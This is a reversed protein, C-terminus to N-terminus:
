TIVSTQVVILCVFFFTSFGYFRRRRAHRDNAIKEIRWFFFLFFFLLLPIVVFATTIATMIVRGIVRTHTHTQSLSFFLFHSTSLSLSYHRSLTRVARRLSGNVFCMNHICVIITCNLQQTESTSSFQIFFFFINLFFFVSWLTSPLLENRVRCAAGAFSRTRPTSLSSPPTNIIGM